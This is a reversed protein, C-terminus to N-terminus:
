YKSLIARELGTCVTLRACHAAAVRTKGVYGSQLSRSRSVGHGRVRKANVVM